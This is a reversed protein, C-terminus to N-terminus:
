FALFYPESLVLSCLFGQSSGPGRFPGRVRATFTKLSRAQTHICMIKQAEGGGGGLSFGPDAETVANIHYKCFM